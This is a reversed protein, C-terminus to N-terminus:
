QLPLIQYRAGCVDIDLFRASVPRVDASALGQPSIGEGQFFGVTRVADREVRLVIGMGDLIVLLDEGTNEEGSTVKTFVFAIETSSRVNRLM